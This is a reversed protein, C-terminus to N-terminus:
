RIVFKPWLLFSAPVVSIIILIIVSATVFPLIERSLDELSVKAISSVVFLVGGVPPTLMGLLSNLLVVLGFQIPDLGYTHALPAIIPMLMLILPIPELFIGLLFLVVNVILLFVMPSSVYSVLFQALQNPINEYAVFYAIFSSAAVIMLVGGSTRATSIMAEVIDRWTLTRYILVGTVLALFASVAGSETATFWGGLLGFFILVPIILIPIAKIFSVAIVNLSARKVAKFKPDKRVFMYVLYIHSLMVLGGVTFGGLFLDEISTNTVAGYIIFLMSPPVIAGKLSAASLIAAARPKTFGEKELLPSLLPTIAAAEANASGAVGSLLYTAIQTAYAVGGRWHGMLSKTFGFIHQVLGARHLLEGTLIFFPIALLEWTIFTYNFTQIVSFVLRLNDSLLIYTFGAVIFAFIIEVGMLLSIFFVLSMLALQM